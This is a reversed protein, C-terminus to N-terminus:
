AARRVKLAIAAIRQLANTDLEGIANGSEMRELLQALSAAVRNVQLRINASSIDQEKIHDDSSYGQLWDAVLALGKEDFTLLAAIGSKKRTGSRKKPPALTEDKEDKGDGGNTGDDNMSDSDANNLGKSIEERFMEVTVYRGAKDEATKWAVYKLIQKEILSEGAADVTETMRLLRSLEYYFSTKLQPAVRGIAKGYRSHLIYYGWYRYLQRPSCEISPHKSLRELTKGGYKRGGKLEVYEHILMGVNFADQQAKVYCAAIQTILLEEKNYSTGDNSTQSNQSDCSSNGDNGSRKNNSRM